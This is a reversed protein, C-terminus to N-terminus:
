TGFSDLFMQFCASYETIVWHNSISCLTSALFRYYFNDNNDTPTILRTVRMSTKDRFHAAGPKPFRFFTFREGTAHRTSTQTNEFRKLIGVVRHKLWSPFNSTKLNQIQGPEQSEFSSTSTPPGFKSGFHHEGERRLIENPGTSIAPEPCCTPMGM